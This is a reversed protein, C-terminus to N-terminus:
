SSRAQDGAVIILKSKHEAHGLTGSPVWEIAPNVRCEAKMKEKIEKELEPLSAENFANAYEVRLQLPPVVKPGPEKLLIRVEGTTRPVFGAIVNKVAAPYINVGKVILMDDARGIIKFRVRHDGCQCPSTFVQLIDGLRYRLLPSGEWDIYTFCM